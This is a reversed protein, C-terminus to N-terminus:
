SFFRPPGRPRFQKRWRDPLLVFNSSYRSEAALTPPRPSVAYALAASDRAPRVQTFSVAGDSCDPPCPRTLAQSAVSVTQSPDNQPSSGADDSHSAISCHDSVTVTVDEKPVGPMRMWGMRSSDHGVSVESLGCATEPASKKSDPLSMNCSGALHPRLGVCCEMTCLHASSASNFPTSGALLALLLVAVVIMRASGLIAHWTVSLRSHM